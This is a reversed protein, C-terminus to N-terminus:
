LALSGIPRAGLPVRRALSLMARSLSLSVAVCLTFSQRSLHRGSVRVLQLLPRARLVAGKRGGERGVEM